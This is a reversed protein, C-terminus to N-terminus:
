GRGESKLGHGWFVSLDGVSALFGSHRGTNIPQINTIWMMQRREWDNIRVLAQPLVFVPSKSRLPYKISLPQLTFYPIGSIFDKNPQLLKM